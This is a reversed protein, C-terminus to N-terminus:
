RLRSDDVPLCIEGVREGAQTMGIVLAAGEPLDGDPLEIFYSDKVIEDTQWWNTPHMNRVTGISDDQAILSLLTGEDCATGYDRLHTFVAYSIETTDVAQWYLIVNLRDSRWELDYSYLKINPAIPKDVVMAQNTEQV